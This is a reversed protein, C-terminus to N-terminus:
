ISRMKSNYTRGALLSAAAGLVGSGAVKAAIPSVTGLLVTTYAFFCLSGFALAAGLFGIVALATALRRNNEVFQYERIQERLKQSAQPLGHWDPNIEGQFIRRMREFSHHLLDGAFFGAVGAGVVLSGSTIAQSSMIGHSM